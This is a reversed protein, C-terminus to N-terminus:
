KLFRITMPYQYFEGQNAKVAAMIILVLNVIVLILALLVGIGVIALVACVAFYITMSIQFNLAEKGHADVAPMEDKKILWVILPGLINGMPVVTYGALAALHCLMPWTNDNGSAPPPTAPESM